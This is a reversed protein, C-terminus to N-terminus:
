NCSQWNSVNYSGSGVYVQLKNLSTNYIVAGSIVGSLAARQTTNVQPPLMFRDTANNAPRGAERMDVAGVIVTSGVGLGGVVASCEHANISVNALESITRIGVSGTATVFVQPSENIAANNVEGFADNIMLVHEESNTGIGIIDTEVRSGVTAVGSITLNNLTSVGVTANANGALTGSVNGTLTGQINGVITGGVTLNAGVGLNGSFNGAGEVDLEKTPQTKGIGLTRSDWSSKFTNTCGDKDKLVGAKIKNDIM